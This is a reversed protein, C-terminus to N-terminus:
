KGPEAQKANVTLKGIAEVNVVSGASAKVTYQGIPTDTAVTVPVVFSGNEEVAKATRTFKGTESSFTLTVAEGKPFGQGVVDFHGSQEVIGPQLTVKTAVEVPGDIVQDDTLVYGLNGSRDLADITLEFKGNEARQLQIAGRDSIMARGIVCRYRVPRGDVTQSWDVVLALESLEPTSKLDLRFTGAIVKGEKDTAPVWKAGFFLETTLQNTEMLTAKVQFSASKVNYLVPVASQWVNVPDTEISPTITVGGEDVYGLARFDGDATFPVTDRPLINAVREAPAVYIEGSPAFRIKKSNGSNEAM